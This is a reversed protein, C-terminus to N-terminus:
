IVENQRLQYEKFINNLIFEIFNKTAAFQSLALM